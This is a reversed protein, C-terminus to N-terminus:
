REITALRVVTMDGETRARLDFALSRSGGTLVADEGGSLHSVAIKAARARNAYFALVDALPVPTAFEVHRLKCGPADGGAAAITGGRPYIPLAAPMRAAWIASRSIAADCHPGPLAALHAAPGAGPAIPPEIGSAAAVEPLKDTGGAMVAAEAKVRAIAEPTAPLVPLSFDSEVTLAAAAENRASLDPDTMLPDDLAQAVQPDRAREPAPPAAESCAALALALALPPLARVM